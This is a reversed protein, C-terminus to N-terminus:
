VPTVADGSMADRVQEITPITAIGYKNKITTAVRMKAQGLNVLSWKPYERKLIDFVRDTLVKWPDASVPTEITWMEGDILDFFELIAEKPVRFFDKVPHVRDTYKELLKHLMKEKDNASPVKKAFAVEFPIPIPGSSLEEAKESPSINTYGVKVLGDFLPNTMCYLYGFDTTM